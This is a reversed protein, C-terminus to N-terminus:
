YPILDIPPFITGQNSEQVSSEGGEHLQVSIDNVDDPPDEHGLSIMGTFLGSAAAALSLFASPVGLEDDTVASSKTTNELYPPVIVATANSQQIKAISSSSSSMSSDRPHSSSSSNAADTRYFHPLESKEIRGYKLILSALDGSDRLRLQKKFAVLLAGNMLQVAIRTSPFEEVKEIIGVASLRVSPNPHLLGMGLTDLGGLSQPLHWLLAQVSDESQLAELIGSFIQPAETHANIAPVGCLLRRVESRLKLELASSGVSKPDTGYISVSSSFVNLNLTNLESHAEENAGSEVSFISNNTNALATRSIWSWPSLPILLFEPSIRLAAVRATLIETDGKKKLRPGVMAPGSLDKIHEIIATTYDFFREAVWEEEAVTSQIVRSSIVSIVGNIYRSDAADQIHQQVTEPNEFPLLRGGVNALGGYIGGRAALAGNSVSTTMGGKSHEESRKREEPSYVSGTGNPLDLVCALDWWQDRELFM